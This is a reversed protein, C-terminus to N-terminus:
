MMKDAEDELAKAKWGQANRRLVVAHLRLVEKLQAKMDAALYPAQAQAMLGRLIREAEACDAIGGKLDKVGSRTEARTIYANAAALSGPYADAVRMVAEDGMVAAEKTKGQALLVQAVDNYAVAHAVMHGTPTFRGAIGLAQQCIALAGADKARALTECQEHVPEFEKAVLDDPSPPAEHLSFDVKTRVVAPVPKGGRLLPRYSAHQYPEVAADRLEEPGSLARVSAVSGTESVRVELEVTGQIRKAKADAPYVITPPTIPEDSVVPAQALFPLSALLLFLVLGARM